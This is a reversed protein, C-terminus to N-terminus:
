PAVFPAGNYAYGNGAYDDGTPQGQEPPEPDLDLNHAPPEPYPEEAPQPAMAEAMVALEDVSMTGLGSTQEARMLGHNVALQAAISVGLMLPEAWPTAQNFRDLAAALGAWNQASKNVVAGIEPARMHFVVADLKYARKPVQSLLSAGFQVLGTVQETYDVKTRPTSPKRARAPGSPGPKSAPRRRTGKGAPRGGFGRKPTGDAKRGYPAEPDVEPGAVPTETTTM